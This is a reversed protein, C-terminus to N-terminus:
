SMVAFGFESRAMVVPHSGPIYVYGLGASLFSGKRVWSRLPIYRRLM